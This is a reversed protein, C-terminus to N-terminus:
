GSLGRSKKQSKEPKYHPFLDGWKSKRADYYEQKGHSKAVTFREVDGSPCCADFIVHGGRKLPPVVLRPWRSEGTPRQGRKLVFYSYSNREEGM